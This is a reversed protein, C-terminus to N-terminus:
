IYDLMCEAWEFWVEDIEVRSYKYVPTELNSHEPLAAYNDSQQIDAFTDPTSSLYRLHYSLLSPGFWGYKRASSFAMEADTLRKFILKVSNSEQQVETAVEVIPGYRCFIRILDVESPLPSSKNFNLVLATPMCRDVIKANVSIIPRDSSLVQKMTPCAIGIQIHETAQVVPVSILASTQRSTKRKKRQAPAHVEVEIKTPRNHSILDSWYSDMMHDTEIMESFVSLAEVRRKKDKEAREEELHKEESASSSVCYNRFKTFFSILSSLYDYGEIPDRANCNSANSNDLNCAGPLMLLREVKLGLASWPSSCNHTQQVAYCLCVPNTGRINRVTDCCDSNAATCRHQLSTDAAPSKEQRNDVKKKRTDSPLKLYGSTSVSTYQYQCDEQQLSIQRLAANGRDVVLLSCTRGVYIVDFDNSFKADESPGDRYGAINSKGGAITTVGSETIKRIAMNSIDAVYVNGKDDMAAGKPRYFRADAPKGDRCTWLIGSEFLGKGGAASRGRRGWRFVGDPFFLCHQQAVVVGGGCGGRSGRCVAGPECRLRVYVTGCERRCLFVRTSYGDGNRATSINISLSIESRLVRTRFVISFVVLLFWGWITWGRFIESVGVSGKGVESAWPFRLQSFSPQASHPLLPLLKLQLPVAASGREEEEEEEEEEMADEKEGLRM